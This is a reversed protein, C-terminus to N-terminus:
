PQRGSMALLKTQLDADNPVTIAPKFVGMKRWEEAHPMLEDWMGQVLDPPLTPDVGIFRALEWARFGRFSTIHQLYDRAPWDGYSLHVTKDLDTFDKAAAQAKEALARYSAKPDTGLLDGAYRDGVEEITKGGLTDPVWAEDYAHYNILERLSAPKRTIEEPAALEWQEDKIQDVVRVLAQSSLIFVEPETM